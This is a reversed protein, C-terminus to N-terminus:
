KVIRPANAVPKLFRGRYGRSLKSSIAHLKEIRGDTKMHCSTCLWRWNDLDRTYTKPNITNSINCLELKKVKNCLRCVHPKPLRTKVWRHLGDIGVDDGKWIPNKEGTRALSLKIKHATSLTYANKLGKNWPVRKVGIKQGCTPCTDTM